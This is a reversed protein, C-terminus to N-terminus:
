WCVHEVFHTTFHIEGLLQRFIHWFHFVSFRLVVTEFSRSYSTMSKCILVIFPEYSKNEINIAPDWVFSRKLWRFRVSGLGQANEKLGKPNAWASNL